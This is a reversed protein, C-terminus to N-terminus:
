NLWKVIDNSFFTKLIYRPLSGLTEPQHHFATMIGSLSICFLLLEGLPISIRGSRRKLILYLSDLARPLVYLALESRRSKQEIFISSGSLLGAIWYLLRHEKGSSLARYFCVVVQYWSVFASLFITSRCANFLSRSISKVPAAKLRSFQLVILPVFTLSAYLPFIKRAVDSAVRVGNVSCHKQQPHLAECPVRGTSAIGDVLSSVKEPSYFRSLYKTLAPLNKDLSSGKTHVTEVTEIVSTHIPGTKTIFNLYSPPLAFRRVAYSYMIQGCSIMFLLSDYHEFRPFIRHFIKHDKLSNYVCQLFRAFFYLSLTRKSEPDKVVLLALGSIFGSLATHWMLRPAYEVIKTKSTIVVREGSPTTTIIRERKSSAFNARSSLTPQTPTKPTGDSTTDEEQSFSDMSPEFDDLEELHHEDEANEERHQPQSSDGANRSAVGGVSVVKSEEGKGEEGVCIREQLYRVRRRRVKGSDMGMFRFWIFRMTMEALDYLTCIGACFLGVRMAAEYPATKKHVLMERVIDKSFRM